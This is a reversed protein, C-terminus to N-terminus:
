KDLESAIVLDNTGDVPPKSATLGGLALQLEQLKAREESLQGGAAGEM